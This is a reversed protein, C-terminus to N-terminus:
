PCEVEGAILNAPISKSAGTSDVCWATTTSLLLASVAYATGDTHCSLTAGLPYNAQTSYSLMGSDSDAFFAASCLDSVETGYHGNTDYYVEAAARIGSLQAKVKADNGKGRATNLSALVVSSLIGIIAIVVM